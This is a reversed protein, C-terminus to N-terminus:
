CEVTHDDKLIALVDMIYKGGPYIIVAYFKGSGFELMKGYQCVFRTPDNKKVTSQDFSADLIVENMNYMKSAEVASFFLRILLLWLM